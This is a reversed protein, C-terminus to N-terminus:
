RYDETKCSLKGLSVTMDSDPKQSAGWPGHLPSTELRIAGNLRAEAVRDDASISTEVSGMSWDKLLGTKGNGAFMYVDYANTANDHILPGNGNNLTKLHALPNQTGLPVEASTSLTQVPLTVTHIQYSGVSANVNNSSGNSNDSYYRLTASWTGTATSAVTPDPRSECTVSAKFDIFEIAGRKASSTTLTPTLMVVGGNVVNAVARVTQNVAPSTATSHVEVEGRPDTGAPSNMDRVIFMKNGGTLGLNLPNVSNAGVTGSLPVQPQVMMSAYETSNAPPWFTTSNFDYYGKVRPLDSAVTPGIGSVGSLTGAEAPGWWGAAGTPVETQQLTQAASTTSALSSANTPAHADFAAGNIWSEYGVDTANAPDAARIVSMVGSRVTLDAKSGTDLQEGYANAVGMTGILESKRPTSQTDQYTTAVQVAYEIKADARLKVNAPAGEVVQPEAPAPTPASPLQARARDSLYSTLNFSRAKAGVTWTTTVNVELLQSPPTDNGASDWAYAAPVPVTTTPTEANKFVATVKITYDKDAPLEPGSPLANCAPATSARTCTTVFSNTAADFGTTVSASLAPTRAPFFHDLVDVKKPTSSYSAYYRLGRLRELTKATVNRAVSETRTAAGGKMAAALLPVLGVTMISFITIAVLTEM